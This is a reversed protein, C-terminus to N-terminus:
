IEIPKPNPPRFHRMSSGAESPKFPAMNGYPKPIGMEEPVYATPRPEATTKAMATPQILQMGEEKRMSTEISQLRRRELRTWEAVADENPAENHDVRWTADTLGKERQVKEQQLRLATAQYMSLESVTALMKKTTDRIRTQVSNLQGAISKASDRRGVAQSRLKETLATVEELILEKELLQERKADVRDELVSIKANLQELDPDDGELPRWRDGSKPDELQTSLEETNKREKTLQDELDSIQQRLKDMEPLRHQAVMYRRRLEETQLRLMRLEEERSLLELEGRKMAEQQQNAREYLVCLEDNRDILQVGTVNRDEVSFEYKAKLELMDRELANIVLNLKEIEQIQQEVVSQKSRYELLLKNLDQRLADRQTQAQTHATREKSLAKDKASSENGLIEVENQLIRIKERMEALAQTSGQILNVYKNRENKVIEYLASFEKLRNSLEACRKTLDTILMSKMRVHARAEKEKAEVRALERAKIDRQASLVAILKSQRKEEALWYVVDSELGDVEAVLVELQEKKGAELGEQMLFQAMKTDVEDKMDQVQKRLGDRESKYNQLNAEADSLSSELVPLIQRVNDCFTRKKKLSRLLNDYEKKQFGAQDNQHRLNGDVEKKKVNVEVKKTVLDHTKAKENHLTSSVTAVDKERSEITQKHLETKETLGLRLQEADKRRKKQKELMEDQQDIRRQVDRAEKTMSECAKVIADTQRSVRDPEQSNKALKERLKISAEKKEKQTDHQLDMKSTISDKTATEKAIAEDTEVLQQKLNAADTRFSELVPEVLDHNDSNMKDLASALDDHIKKLESLEFKAMTARQESFEVQKQVSEKDDEMIRLKQIEETEEHRVKELAIKEALIENGISRSEAAAEEEKMETDIKRRYLTRYRKRMVEADEATIKGRILLDAVMSFAVSDKVDEPDEDPEM